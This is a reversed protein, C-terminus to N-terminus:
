LNIEGLDMMLAGKEKMEEVARESDGEERDVGRVADVLLYVTFGEKLGDLVTAKVCYDTALGGVYLDKVGAATLAEKFGRGESDLGQFGSYADEEPDTGKTIIVAGQPLRLDPHLRAGITGKICHPPWMGGYEKFHLTKEPHFDRTAYVPMGEEKFIDIYLNLIPVISDGYPVALAGGPCFDNQVDVIVLAGKDAM